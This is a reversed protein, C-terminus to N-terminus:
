RSLDVRTMGLSEDNERHSEIKEFQIQIGLIDSM